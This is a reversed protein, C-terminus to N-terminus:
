WGVSLMQYVTFSEIFEVLDGGNEPIDPLPVSPNFRHAKDRYFTLYEGLTEGVPDGDPDPYAVSHVAQCRAYVAKFEDIGKFVGLSDVLEDTINEGWSESYAYDVREAASEIVPDIPMKQFVSRIPRDLDAASFPMNFNMVSVIM